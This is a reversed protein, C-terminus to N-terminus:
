KFSELQYQPFIAPLILYAFTTYVQFTAPIDIIDAPKILLM